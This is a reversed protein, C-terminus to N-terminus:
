QKQLQLHEDELLEPNDMKISTSTKSIINWTKSLRRFPNDTGLNMVIAENSSSGYYTVAPTHSWTGATAVGNITATVKGNASFKFTYGAFKGTNDEKKQTLSAVVWSGSTIAVTLTDSNSNAATSSNSKQCSSFSIICVLCLLGCIHLISKM